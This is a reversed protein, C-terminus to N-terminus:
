VWVICESSVAECHLVRIRSLCFERQFLEPFQQSRVGVVRGSIEHSRLRECFGVTSIFRPAHQLVANGRSLAFTVRMGGAFHLAHQVFQLLSRDTACNTALQADSLGM